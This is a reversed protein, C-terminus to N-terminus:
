TRYQRGIKFEIDSVGMLWKECSAEPGCKWREEFDSRSLPMREGNWPDNLFIREGEWGVVVSYHGDDNSMERYHVIVPKEQTLLFLIEDYPADNNVYSFLGRRGVADILARHPTGNEKDTELERALATESEHIGYYAFVM